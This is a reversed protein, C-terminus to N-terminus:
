HLLSQSSTFSQATMLSRVLLDGTLEKFEVLPHYIEVFISQTLVLPFITFSQIPSQCQHLRAVLAARQACFPLLQAM